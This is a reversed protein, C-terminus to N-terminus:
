KALQGRVAGGPFFNPAPNRTHFNVYYGVPDTLIGRLVEREVPICSNAVGPAKFTANPFAVVVPGNAGAAAEHIHAGSLSGTRQWALDFCLEGRGANITVEAQGAGDPDGVGTQGLAGVENAGALVATLTRGSGGTSTNEASGAGATVLVASGAAAATLAVAVAATRLLSSRTM